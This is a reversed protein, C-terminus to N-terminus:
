RELFFVFPESPYYHIVRREPFAQAVAANGRVGTSIVFLIPTDLFPTQMELLSGYETWHDPHVIVLAPALERAQQTQFPLLRDRRVGYLGYMSSIRLPAYFFLNVSLLLLLLAEMGLPRMRWWGKFSRCAEGCQTPWGALWAIGLATLMTLSHLGEYYYRPGYLSSGIWYFLYIFVLSPLVMVPLLAQWNRHRLLALLGFPLFIWSYRGWGFLDHQGVILSFRTNIRALNWNHGSETHGRGLGFGIKDYDWWLTYPNFFPDGTVAFQWLLFLGALSLVIAVFVLLRLRTARNGRVLLIFGHVVFPLSVGLATFPRTLALLGLCTASVLTPLWPNLRNQEEDRQMWADLWALSFVVSLFLGLPHSLLSGSNILFFPSSLTLLAALLGVIESFLRRGLRYTFWVGLGALLPNVLWRVGFLVGLGLLAPWGPPYKGFRQGQYDVVFPVLFSEPNPPSVTTLRGRAALQAQWVYAMEDEIHAMNEFIRRSVWLCALVAVLSLILAIYDARRM